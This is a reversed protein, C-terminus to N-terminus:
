TDRPVQSKGSSETAGNGLVDLGSDDNKDRVTCLSQLSDQFPSVPDKLLVLTAKKLQIRLPIKVIQKM